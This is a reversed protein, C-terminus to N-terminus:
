RTGGRANRHMANRLTRRNRNGEGAFSATRNELARQLLCTICRLRTAVDFLTQDPKVSPFVPHPIIGKSTFRFRACISSSSLIIDRSLLSLEVSVSVHERTMKVIKLASSANLASRDIDFRFRPNENKFICQFISILSLSLSLSLSLDNGVDM